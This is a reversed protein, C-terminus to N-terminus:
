TLKHHFPTLLRSFLSLSFVKICFPGAEFHISILPHEIFWHFIILNLCHSKKESKGFGSELCRERCPRLPGWDGHDLSSKAKKWQLTDHIWYGTMCLMLKNHLGRPLWITCQQFTSVSRMQYIELTVFGNKSQQIKGVIFSLIVCTRVALSCFLLLCEEGCMEGENCIRDGLSLSGKERQETIHAIWSNDDQKREFSVMGASSDIPCLPLPTQPQYDGAPELCLHCLCWCSTTTCCCDLFDEQCVCGSFGVAPRPTAAHLNSASVQGGSTCLTLADIELALDQHWQEIIPFTYFYGRQFSKFITSAKWSLLVGILSGTILSNSWGRLSILLSTM